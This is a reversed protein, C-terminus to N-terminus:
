YSLGDGWSEGASSVPVSTPPSGGGSSGVPPSSPSSESVAESAAVPLAVPAVVPSSVPFKEGGAALGGPPAEGGPGVPVVRSRVSPDSYPDASPTRVAESGVQSRDEANM